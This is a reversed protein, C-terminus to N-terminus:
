VIHRDPRTPPHARYTADPFHVPVTGGSANIAAKIPGTDDASGDGVAGFATVNLMTPTAPAVQALAADRQADITTSM